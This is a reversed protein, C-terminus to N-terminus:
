LKGLAARKAEEEPWSFTEAWRPEYNTEFYVSDDVVEPVIHRREPPLRDRLKPFFEKLSALQRDPLGGQRVFIRDSSAQAPM